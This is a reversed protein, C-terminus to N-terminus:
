RYRVSSRVTVDQRQYSDDTGGFFGCGGYWGNGVGQRNDILVTHYEVTPGEFGVFAAPQRISRDLNIPPLGQAVPLDFVLASAPAAIREAAPVAEGTAPDGTGAAGLSRSAPPATPSSHVACGSMLATACVPMALRLATFLRMLLLIEFGTGPQAM